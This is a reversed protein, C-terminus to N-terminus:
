PSFNQTIFCLYKVQQHPNSLHLYLLDAMPLMNCSVVAGCKPLQERVLCRDPLGNRFCAHLDGFGTQQAVERRNLGILIPELSRLTIDCHRLNIGWSHAYLDDVLGDLDVTRMNNALVGFETGEVM